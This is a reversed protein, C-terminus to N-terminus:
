LFIRNKKGANTSIVSLKIAIIKMFKQNARGEFQSRGFEWIRRAYRMWSAPACTCSCMDSRSGVGRLLGVRKKCHWIEEGRLRLFQIDIKKGGGMKVGGGRGLNATPLTLDYKM